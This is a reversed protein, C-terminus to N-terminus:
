SVGSQPFQEKLRVFQKDLLVAFMVGGGSLLISTASITLIDSAKDIRGDFPNVPM